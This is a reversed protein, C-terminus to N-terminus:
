RGALRQLNEAYELDRAARIPDVSEDGADAAAIRRKADELDAAVAAADIAETAIAGEVLVLAVDRQVKFHGESTAFSRATGDAFRVRVEGAKLEAVLPAHRALVGLEGETGPVIVREVRGEFVPGDPTVIRCDLEAM